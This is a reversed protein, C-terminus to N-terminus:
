PTAMRTMTKKDGDLQVVTMGYFGTGVSGGDAVPLNVNMCGPTTGDITLTVPGSVGYQTTVVM